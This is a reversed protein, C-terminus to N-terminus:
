TLPYIYKYRQLSYTTMSNNYSCAYDFYLYIIRYSQWHWWQRDSVSRCLPNYVIFLCSQDRKIDFLLIELKVIQDIARKNRITSNLILIYMKKLIVYWFLWVCYCAYLYLYEKGKLKCIFVYEKLLLLILAIHRQIKNFRTYCKHLYYWLYICGEKTSLFSYVIGHFFFWYIVFHCNFESFM